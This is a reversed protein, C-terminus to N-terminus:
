KKFWINRCVCATKIAHRVLKQDAQNLAELFTIGTDRKATINLLDVVRDAYEYLPTGEIVPTNITVEFLACLSPCMAGTSDNFFTAKEGCMFETKALYHWRLRRLNTSHLGKFAATLVKCIHKREEKDALSKTAIM